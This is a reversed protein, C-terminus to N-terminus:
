RVSERDPDVEPDESEVVGAGAPPDEDLSEDELPEEGLLADLPELPLLAEPDELVEDLAAAAEQGGGGTSLWRCALRSDM